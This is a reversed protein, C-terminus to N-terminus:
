TLQAVVLPDNDPGRKGYIFVEFFVTSPLEYVIRILIALM